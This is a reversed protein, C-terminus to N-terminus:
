SPVLCSRQPEPERGPGEPVGTIVAQISELDHNAEKNGPVANENGDRRKPDVREVLSLPNQDQATVFAPAMNINTSQAPPIPAM